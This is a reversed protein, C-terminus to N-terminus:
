AEYAPLTNISKFCEIVFAELPQLQMDMSIAISTRDDNPIDTDPAPHKGPSLLGLDLARIFRKLPQQTGRNIRKIVGTQFNRNIAHPALTLLIASITPM